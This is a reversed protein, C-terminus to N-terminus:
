RTAESSDGLDRRWEDGALSLRREVIAWALESATLGRMFAKARLRVLAEAPGVDMAGMIMGTAQYVEVRELSALQEWAGEGQGASEWDVDSTMLDLLPLASLEAALLGGTLTDPSLSGSRNRYLDLAGVSASAIAVPLAFVASVGLDLVAGRFAPWRQEAPDSLDPALVPGGHRVADICPGEGFTFQYEDLQRSLDGSAGFTGHSAGAHVLSISAGDVELLEVCVECLRNAAALASDADALAEGLDARLRDYGYM